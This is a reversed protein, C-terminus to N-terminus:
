QAARRFQSPANPVVVPTGPVDGGHRRPQRPHRIGAGGPGKLAIRGTIFPKLDEKGDRVLKIVADM